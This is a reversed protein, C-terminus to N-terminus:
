IYKDTDPIPFNQYKAKIEKDDNIIPGLGLRDDRTSEVIAKFKMQYLLGMDSNFHLIKVTDSSYSPILVSVKDDM